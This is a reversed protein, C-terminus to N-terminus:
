ITPRVTLLQPLVSPLVPHSAQHCVCTCWRGAAAVHATTTRLICVRPGLVVPLQDLLLKTVVMRLQDMILETCRAATLSLCVRVCERVGQGWWELLPKAAVMWACSTM